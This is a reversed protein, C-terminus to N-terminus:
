GRGLDEEENLFDDDAECEACLCGACRPKGECGPVACRLPTLGFWERAQAIHELYYATDEMTMWRGTARRNELLDRWHQETASMGEAPPLATRLQEDHEAWISAEAAPAAPAAAAYLDDDLWQGGGGTRYMPVLWPDVEEAPAAAAAEESSSEPAEFGMQERIALYDEEGQRAAEDCEVCVGRGFVALGVGCEVCALEQTADCAGTEDKKRTDVGDRAIATAVRSRSTSEM